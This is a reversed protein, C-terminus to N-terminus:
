EAKKRKLLQERTMGHKKLIDGVYSLLKKEVKVIKHTRINTEGEVVQPTYFGIKQNHISDFIKYQHTVYLIKAKTKEADDLLEFTLECAKDESTSSFTENLLSISESCFNKKMRNLRNLEDILRGDGIKYNEENPFHTFIYKVPYIEAKEGFMFGILMSLIYNIGVSRLYCTKGGSNVGLIFQVNENDSIVFDNPITKIGSTVLSIDYGKTVKTEKDSFSVKCIPVNKNGIYEFLTKILTYFKLEPIYSSIDLVTEKNEEHYAILEQKLQNDGNVLEHLFYPNIEKRVGLRPVKDLSINLKEAINILDDELNNQKENILQIYPAGDHYNASLSMISMSREYLNNTKSILKENEKLYTSINNSLELLWNSKYTNNISNMVKDLFKFLNYNYMVITLRKKINEHANRFAEYRSCIDVLEYYISTVLGNDYLFDNFIEQRIKLTEVNPIDKLVKIVEDSDSYNDYVTELIRRLKLDDFVTDEIESEIEPNEINKWLLSKM